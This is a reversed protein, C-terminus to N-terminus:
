QYKILFPQVDFALIAASDDNVIGITVVAISDLMDDQVLGELSFDRLSEIAVPYAASALLGLLLKDPFPYLECNVMFVRVSVPIIDICDLKKATVAM